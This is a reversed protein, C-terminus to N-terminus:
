ALFRLTGIDEENFLSSKTKMIECPINRMDGIIKFRLLLTLMSPPFRM